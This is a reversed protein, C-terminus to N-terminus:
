VKVIPLPFLEKMLATLILIKRSTTEKQEVSKLKIMIRKLLM